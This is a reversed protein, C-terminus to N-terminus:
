ESLCSAGKKGERYPALSLTERLGGWVDISFFRLVVREKERKQTGGGRGGKFSGERRAAPYNEELVFSGGKWPAIGPGAYKLLFLLEDATKKREKQV